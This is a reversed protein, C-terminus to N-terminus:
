QREEAGSGLLPLAPNTIATLSTPDIAIAGAKSQLLQLTEHRLQYEESQLKDPNRVAFYGFGLCTVVVPLAGLALLGVAIAPADRFQNAAVFAAPSVIATLWLMPNLASRVRLARAAAYSSRSILDLM